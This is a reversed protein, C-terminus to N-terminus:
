TMKRRLMDGADVWDPLDDIRVKYNPHAANLELGELGRLGAISIMARKMQPGLFELEEGCFFRNRGEIYLGNGDRCVMTRYRRSGFM